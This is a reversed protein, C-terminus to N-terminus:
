LKTIRRNAIIKRLKRNKIRSPITVIYLFSFAGAVSLIVTILNIPVPEWVAMLTINHTYQYAMDATIFQDQHKWGVFRSLIKSPSALSGMLQDYNITQTAVNSGGNSNFFILYTNPQWIAFLTADEPIQYPSDETITIGSGDQESNWEIFTYGTRVPEPMTGVQKDFVVDQYSIPLDQGGRPDYIITYEIAQWVAYITKDYDPIVSFVYPSHVIEDLEPIYDNEDTSWGMFTFGPRMPTPASSSVNTLYDAVLPELPQGGNTEFYIGYQNIQFTAVFMLGSAYIFETDPTILESQYTWGLFTHGTKQLVQSQAYDFETGVQLPVISTQGDIQLSVDVIWKAYVTTNEAPMYDFTYPETLQEDSHWGAFNCGAFIPATPETIAEGEELSYSQLLSGGNTEFNLLFEKTFIRAAYPQWYVDQKYTDLLLASVYIKFTSNISALGGSSITTINNSRRLSISQIKNSAFFASSNISYVSAPIVIDTLQPCYAFINSALNTLSKSLTVQHLASCFEFAGSNITSVNDHMTLTLLSPNSSFAYMGIYTLSQPLELNIIRTVHFAGENLTQLGSPFNVYNLSTTYGFAYSGVTQLTSPLVLTTLATCNNFSYSGISTLGDEFVVTALSTAYSFAYSQLSTVTSPILISSIKSRYLSYNSITRVSSAITVSTKNEPSYLLTSQNKNHLVGNLSSFNQNDPHVFIDNLATCGRFADNTSISSVFEPITINLLSTCNEFAYFNIETLSLPLILAELAMCGSFARSQISVIDDSLVVNSLATCGRFANDPLITIGGAEIELYILSTCNRFVGEGLTLITGPLYIATLASCNRFANDGISTLYQPFVITEFATCYAFAYSDIITLGSPLEFQTIKDCGYFAYQGVRTISIPFSISTKGEPCLVVTTVAKNYVVGDISQYTQNNADINIATLSKSSRFAGYHISSVNRPINISTLAACSSFANNSITTLPDSLSVSSLLNCNSFANVSINLVGTGIVVTELRSSAFFASDGISTVNNPITVTTLRNSYSFASAGITKVGTGFNVSSLMNINYFAGTPINTLSNPFTIGTLNSCDAFAYNGLVSLGGALTVSTLNNSNRFVESGFTTISSPITVSALRSQFFAGDGITTLSNPLTITSFRTNQFAYAGITKVFLPMNITNLNTCGSFAYVGIIEITNPLTVSTISSKNYFGSNAIRKVPRGNFLSPVIVSSPNEDAKLSVSYATNNDVLTFNLISSDAHVSALQPASFHFFMGLLFCLQLCLAILFVTRLSTKNLNITKVEM